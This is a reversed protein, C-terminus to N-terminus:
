ADGGRPPKGAKQATKEPRFHVRVHEGASLTNSYTDVILSHPTLGSTIEVNKGDNIGTSVPVMDIRGDKVELVHSSHHSSEVASVPVILADPHRVLDLTVHVYSRPYILHDPNNIDIEALMTRTALDLSKAFRVVPAKFVRNPFEDFRLVARTGRKIYPYSGEPVYVYVRLKDINALTLVPGGGTRHGGSGEMADPSILGSTENIGFDSGGARILAGPDAFRGTIVGSFPAVIQTYSIMTALTRMAAQTERYKAYAIDVDEQSVLRPDSEQVRKLRQYTIRAIVMSAKARAFNARLEPVEIEALVQGKKVTDGKDVWIHKLYGTVKAHLAVEYYGVVDGPLVLTQAIEGRQPRVVNVIPKLPKSVPDAPKACSYMTLLGLGLALGLTAKAAIKM